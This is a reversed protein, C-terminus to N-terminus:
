VTTAFGDPIELGLNAIKHFSKRSLISFLYFVSKKFIRTQDHLADIHAYIIIHNGHSKLRITTLEPTCFFTPFMYSDLYLLQIKLGIHVRLLSLM